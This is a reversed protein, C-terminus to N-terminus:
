ERVEKVGAVSLPPDWPRDREDPWAEGAEDARQAHRMVLVRLNMPCQLRLFSRPHSLWRQEDHRGLDYLNKKEKGCKEGWV